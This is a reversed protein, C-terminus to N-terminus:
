WIGRKITEYLITKGKVIRMKHKTINMLNKNNIKTKVAKTQENQIGQYTNTTIFMMMRTFEKTKLM